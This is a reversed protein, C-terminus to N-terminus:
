RGFEIQHKHLSYPDAKLHTCLLFFFCDPNLVQPSVSERTTLMVRFDIPNAKFSSDLSNFNIYMVLSTHLDLIKFM